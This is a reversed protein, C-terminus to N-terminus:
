KDSAKKTNISQHYKMWDYIRILRKLDSKSTGSLESELLIDPKETFINVLFKELENLDIESEQLFALRSFVRSDLGKSTTFNRLVDEVSHSEFGQRWKKISTNLLDDFCKVATKDIIESYENEAKSLYKFVPLKNNQRFLVPFAKELIEDASFPLTGDIVIDKYWQEAKIGVLGNLVDQSNRGIFFGIETDKINPDFANVVIHKTPTNTLTYNYFQEKLFRLTKVPLGTKKAKLGEYILAFNDTELLTMPIPTGNITNYTTSVKITDSFDKNHQVFVFRNALKKINKESLCNIISNLIAQINRDSLSYGIFIIPYEVFITMLKAALYKCKEDFKQYDEETIVISEPLSISGHIKYIEAVEQISSFILEEQGIFVKYNPAIKELFCDYNTTIFGSINRISLEKLLNIENQYVPSLVSNREIYYAVEAKFPSANAETVATLIELASGRFDSESYWKANFDKEILSGVKALDNNAFTIYSRLKLPDASLRKCFHNLLSKWDPLNLYRRSLGSGVFMYPTSPFQNVVKEWTEKVIIVEERELVSAM